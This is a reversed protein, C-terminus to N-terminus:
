LDDTYIKNIMIHTKECDLQTIYRRCKYNHKSIETIRGLCVCCIKQKYYLRACAAFGIYSLLYENDDIFVIL